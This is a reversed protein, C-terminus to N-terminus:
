LHIESTPAGMGATRQRRRHFLWAAFVAVLVAALGYWTVAYQLHHNPLKVRLPAPHPVGGPPVPAEQEVYFPAVTDWQRVAAMKLPDRVYWVDNARDHDAVFASSLDPWRLVGVIEQPGVPLSSIRDKAYGRNVVIHEGGPLRGAMFVFYGSSRVDDRLASGSTFVWAADNRFDARLRVRRFEANDATLTGWQSPPPLEGPTAKLREELTAIMREKWAKRELQWTGLSLLVALGSLTFILPILLSSRNLTM